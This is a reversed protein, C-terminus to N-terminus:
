RKKRSSSLNKRKPRMKRSASLNKKELSLLTKFLAVDSGNVKRTEEIRTRREGSLLDPFKHAWRKLAKEVAQRSKWKPHMEGGDAVIDYFSRMEDFGPLMADLDVEHDNPPTYVYEAAKRLLAHAPSLMEEPAKSVIVSLQIAVLALDGATFERKM